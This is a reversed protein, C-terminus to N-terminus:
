WAVGSGNFGFSSDACRVGAGARLLRTYGQTVAYLGWLRLGLGM